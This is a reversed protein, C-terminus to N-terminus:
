SEKYFQAMNRFKNYRADLMQEVTLTRTEHLARRLVEDLTAAMAAHDTHAGGAPEPVIEDIIGFEKLEPATIKMAAAALERKSVDRWMISACGEPSIVSYVSNELMLIRDGVAIGLAGGSGGEGTVTVIIPVPLRAMELLNRAIAEAQGREEAGLGPYAGPTDVFAFIPRNWKEAMRMARLAKRYGEPGPMGFNRYVKQKTDRGKQHGVVLVQEGHFTAMGCVIAPDDGFGRDGHIESFDAFIHQVYDLTYPRNNHRALETRQWPGLNAYVQKRLTAVQEHMETLQALAAQNDGAVSELEAIQKEIEELQQETKSSGEM